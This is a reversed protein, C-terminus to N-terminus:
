RGARLLVLAHRLEAVTREAGPAGGAPRARLYRAYGDAAEAWRRDEERARALLYWGDGGGARDLWPKGDLLSRVAGWAGWAANARAAVLVLEPDSDAKVLERLRRSARWNRGERLLKAVDPPLDVGYAAAAEAPTPASKVVGPTAGAAAASSTVPEETRPDRGTLRTAAWILPLLLLMAAVLIYSQRRNM